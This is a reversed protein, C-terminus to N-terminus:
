WVTSFLFPRAMKREEKLNEALGSCFLPAGRVLVTSIVVRGAVKRKQLRAGFKGLARAKKKKCGVAYRAAPKKGKRGGEPGDEQVM